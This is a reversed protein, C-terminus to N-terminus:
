RYEERPPSFVDVLLCPEVATAQHSVNSPVLWSDGPALELKEDDGIEFLLRGSVLYGVQEHPHTHWPVVAGLIMSVEILMTRDGANLTRRVVGPFLEVPKASDHPALSV